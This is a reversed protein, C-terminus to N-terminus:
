SGGPPRDRGARPQRRASPEHEQAGTLAHAFGSALLAGACQGAVFGAVDQAHIGAFSDTLARALTIAPNAFSTSATWWYGAGITLAVCAPLAGPAARAGALIVFVLTFTACAEALILAGGPRAQTSAQFLPLGFLAHALAVGAVCGGIQALAYLIAHGAGIERRLAMVLTVAPNFHAGSLPALTTILVFLIASTAAANALLALATNGEALQVGMIGSGIVVASLLLAGMGEAGLRRALPTSM